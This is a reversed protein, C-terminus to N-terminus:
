KGRPMATPASSLTKTASVAFLVIRSSTGLPVLQTDLVIAPTGPTSPFESPVLLAARNANGPPRAISPAPSRNTASESFQDMRLSTGTPVLQTQLVSPPCHQARGLATVTELAPM